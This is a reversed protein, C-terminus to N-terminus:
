RKRAKMSKSLRSVTSYHVGLFDGVEKMTFDFEYYVMYIIEDESKGSAMEKQLIEELLIKEATGTEELRGIGDSLSFPCDHAKKGTWLGTLNNRINRRLSLNLIDKKPM